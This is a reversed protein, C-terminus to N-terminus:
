QQLPLKSHKKLSDIHCIRSRIRQGLLGFKKKLFSQLDAEREERQIPGTEGSPVNNLQLRSSIVFVSTQAELKVDKGEEEQGCSSPDVVSSFQARVMAPTLQIPPDHPEGTQEPIELSDDEALSTFLEPVSYSLLEQSFPDRWRPVWVNTLTPTAALSTMSPSSFKKWSMVGKVIEQRSLYQKQTVMHPNIADASLFQPLPCLHFDSDTESYPLHNQFTMLAPVPNFIHLAAYKVPQLMAKPPDLIVAAEEQEQVSSSSQDANVPVGGSKDVTSTASPVMVSTLEDEAGSRLAKVLHPHVYSSSAEQVSFSRYGLVKYQQPVKLAFYPVKEKLHIETPKLPVVGPGDAVLEHPAEPSHYVPFTISTVKSICIQSAQVSDVRPRGGVHGSSGLLLMGDDAELLRPNEM